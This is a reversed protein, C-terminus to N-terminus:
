YSINRLLSVGDLIPNKENKKGDLTLCNNEDTKENFIEIITEYMLENFDSIDYEGDYFKKHGSNQKKKGNEYGTNKARTMFRKKKYLMKNLCPLQFMVKSDSSNLWEKEQRNREDDLVLETDLVNDMHSMRYEKNIEDARYTRKDDINREKFLEDLASKDGSQVRMYIQYLKDLEDYNELEENYKGTNNM